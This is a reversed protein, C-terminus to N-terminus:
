EDDGGFQAMWMLIVAFLLVFLRRSYLNSREMNPRQICPTVRYYQIFFHEKIYLSLILDGFQVTTYM